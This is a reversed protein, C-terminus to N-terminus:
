IKIVSKPCYIYVILRDEEKEKEKNKLGTGKFLHETYYFPVRINLARTYIL